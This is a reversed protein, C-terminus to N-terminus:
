YTSMRLGRLARLAHPPHQLTAANCSAPLLLGGYKDNCREYSMQRCQFNYELLPHNPIEATIFSLKALSEDNM